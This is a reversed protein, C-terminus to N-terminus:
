VIIPKYSNPVLFFSLHWSLRLNTLKIQEMIVDAMEKVLAAREVYICEESFGM